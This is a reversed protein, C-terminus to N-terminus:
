KTPQWIKILRDQSATALGYPTEELTCIANLSQAHANFNGIVEVKDNVVSCCKLQGDKSGAYFLSSKEVGQLATVYDNFAYFTHKCNNIASDISWLKLHKDKSGSVLKNGAITLGSVSDLHPPEFPSLIELSEMGM